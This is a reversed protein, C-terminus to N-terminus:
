AFSGHTCTGRSWLPGSGRHACSVAGPALTVRLPWLAEFAATCHEPPVGKQKSIRYRLVGLGPQQKFSGSNPIGVLELLGFRPHTNKM